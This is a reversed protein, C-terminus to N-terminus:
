PQAQPRCLNEVMPTDGSDSIKTYAITCGDKSFIPAFLHGKIVPVVRGGRLEYLGLLHSQVAYGKSLLFIRGGVPIFYVNAYCDCGCSFCSLGPRIQALQRVDPIALPVSGGATIRSVQPPGNTVREARYRDGTVPDTVPPADYPRLMRVSKTPWYRPKGIQAPVLQGNQWLLYQQNARAYPVAFIPTGDDTFSKPVPTDRDPSDKMDNVADTLIDACGGLGTAALALAVVLVIRNLMALKEAM